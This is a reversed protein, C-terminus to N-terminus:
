DDMEIKWNMMANYVKDPIKGKYRDAMVIILAEKHRRYELFVEEPTNYYGLKVNKGDVNLSARYRNKSKEYSM